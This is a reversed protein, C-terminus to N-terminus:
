YTQNGEKRTIRILEKPEAIVKGCKKCKELKLPVYVPFVIKAKSESTDQEAVLREVEFRNWSGCASCKMRLKTKVSSVIPLNFM